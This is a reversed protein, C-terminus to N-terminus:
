ASIVKDTIATVFGVVNSTEDDIALIFEDSNQLLQLHTKPSLPVQWNTFFGEIQKPQIKKASYICSIM